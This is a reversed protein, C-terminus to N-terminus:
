TLLFEHTLEDWDLGPVTGYIDRVAPGGTAALKYDSRRSVLATLREAESELWARGQAGFLLNKLEKTLSNPEVLALWGGGFPSDNALTPRLSLDPNVAVVVGSVPCLLRASHEGRHLTVSPESQSLAQALAPLELGELPGLLCLAFDDIGIRVRGGYEVRAWCHGRHYYYDQANAYGAVLSVRPEDGSLLNEAEVQQDYACDACNFNHACYKVPVYGSLMHRCMRKEMGEEYHRPDRWSIMSRAEPDESRSRQIERQMRRDFSCSTCDFANHCPRPSVVGAKAWICQDDTMNFVVPSGSTRWRIQTVM